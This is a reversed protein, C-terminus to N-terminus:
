RNGSEDIPPRPFAYCWPRAEDPAGPDRDLARLSRVRTLEAFSIIQASRGVTEQRPNLLTQM